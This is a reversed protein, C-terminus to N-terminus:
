LFDISLSKWAKVINEPTPNEPLANEPSDRWPKYRILKYKCYEHYNDGNPNASYRPTAHILIKDRKEPTNRDELVEGTTVKVHFRM